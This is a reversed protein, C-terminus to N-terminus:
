PIYLSKRVVKKAVILLQVAVVGSSLNLRVFTNDDPSGLAINQFGSKVAKRLKPKEQASMVRCIM